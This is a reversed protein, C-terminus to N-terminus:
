NDHRRGGSATHIIFDRNALERQRSMIAAAHEAAVTDAELKRSTIEDQRGYIATVQLMLAHAACAITTVAVLPWADIVIFYITAATHVAIGIINGVTSALRAQDPPLSNM